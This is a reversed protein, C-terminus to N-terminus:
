QKSEAILEKLEAHSKPDRVMMQLTFSVGGLGAKIAWVLYERRKEPPLEVSFREDHVFDSADEIRADPFRQEVLVRDNNDSYVLDYM